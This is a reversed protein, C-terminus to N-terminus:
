SWYQKIYHYSEELAQDLIELGGQGDLEVELTMPGQYGGEWLLTLVAGFDLVGKGFVPFTRDGIIWNAKDKLHVHGVYKGILEGMGALDEEPISGGRNYVNAMDYNIKIREAKVRQLLSVGRLGTNLYGRHTELALFIDYAELINEISQINDIFRSLGM